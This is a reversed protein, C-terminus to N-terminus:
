PAFPRETSGSVYGGVRVTGSGRSSVRSYLQHGSWLVGHSAVQRGRSVLAASAVVKLQELRRPVPTAVRVQADRWRLVFVNFHCGAPPWDIERVVIDEAYIHPVVLLRPKPSLAAEWRGIPRAGM